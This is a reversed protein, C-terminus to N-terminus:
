QLCWTQLDEDYFDAENINLKTLMLSIDNITTRDLIEGHQERIMMERLANNFYERTTSFLIINERFLRLGLDYVPELKKETIYVRNMYGLMKGIDLMSKEYDDWTQKLTVLFTASSSEALKPRVKEVLYEFILKQINQYLEQGHGNFVMTFASRYLEEFSDKENSGKLAKEMGPKLTTSWLSKTHEFDMPTFYQRITM